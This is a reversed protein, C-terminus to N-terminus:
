LLSNGNYDRKITQRPNRFTKDKIKTDTKPIRNKGRVVNEKSKYNIKIEDFFLMKM